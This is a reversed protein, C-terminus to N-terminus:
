VTVKFTRMWLETTLLLWAVKWLEDQGARMDHLVGAIGKADFLDGIRPKSLLLDDALEAVPGRSLLPAMPMEFGQKPRNLVASPLIDAAARKLCRKTDGGAIKENGPLRNVHSVVELDLLPVRIEVGAAMGMRDSRHLFHQLFTKQDVLLQRNIIDLGHTQEACSARYGNDFHPRSWFRRIRPVAVGNHAFVLPTLDGSSSMLEGLEAYRSYGGFLEDGGEGSILVKLGRARAARSVAYAAVHHPRPLPEDHHWALSWLLDPVSQEDICVGEVDIGFARGLDRANDFEDYGYVSDRFCFGVLPKEARGAMATLVGSDLGGSCMIGVPVDSMLQREVADELLGVLKASDARHGNPVRADAVVDWYARTTTEGRRCTLVHGPLLESIGAFATREGAVFHFMFLELADDANLRPHIEGTAFLAKIESAFLLRGERGRAYYLPKVGLQDRALLLTGTERDNFAFAFIGNLKDLVAEGHIILLWLLTETDSHGRFRVGRAELDSRFDLHNYLEGNYVLLYRGDPSLMPQAGAASPDIIALRVHGVGLGPAFSCGDGDPGRHRIQELMSEIEAPQPNGGAIGVLGCM